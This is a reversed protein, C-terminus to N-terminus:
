STPSPPLDNVVRKIGKRLVIEHFNILLGLRLNTLRLYSLLHAQDIPLLCEKAKADIIVKEEVLLDLRLPTALKVGKYAIAVRQQRRFSLHRLHLEHCLAGEYISEVLGPGVIRHVEIAAGIIERSLSNEDWMGAM